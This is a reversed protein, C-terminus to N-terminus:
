NRMKGGRRKSHIQQAYVQRDVAKRNLVEVFKKKADSAGKIGKTFKELDNGRVDGLRAVMLEHNLPKHSYKRIARGMPVISALHEDGDFDRHCIRMALMEEVFMDAILMEAIFTIGRAPFACLVRPATIKRVKYYENGISAFPINFAQNHRVPSKSDLLHNFRDNDYIVLPDFVIESFYTKLRLMTHKNRYIGFCRLRNSVRAIEAKAAVLKLYRLALGSNFVIMNSIPLNNMDAGIEGIVYIVPIAEAFYSAVLRLNKMDSVAGTMTCVITHERNKFTVGHDHRGCSLCGIKMQTIVNKERKHFYSTIQRVIEPALYGDYSM